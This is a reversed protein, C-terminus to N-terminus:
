DTATHVSLRKISAWISHPAGYLAPQNPNHPPPTACFNDNYVLPACCPIDQRQRKRNNERLTEMKGAM